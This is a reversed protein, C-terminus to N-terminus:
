TRSKKQMAKKMQAIILTHPFTIAAMLSFFLAKFVTDNAIAWYAIGMTGVALCWYLASSKFYHGWSRRNETGYLFRIQEQISPVSHWLVFYMSFGWILGAHYFILTFVMLYFLNRGIRARFASSKQALLSGLVLVSLGLFLTIEQIWLTAYTKRTITQVIAQVEKEHFCFLIGLVLLGYSGQFLMGLRNQLFPIELTWHQNGFHYGSILIFLLLGYSPLLTFVVMGILVITIYKLLLTVEWSKSGSEKLQQGITLDNAGHVIGLLAIGVFGILQQNEVSIFNALWLMFFTLLIRLHLSNEM